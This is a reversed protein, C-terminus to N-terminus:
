QQARRHARPVRQEGRAHKVLTKLVTSKGNGGDGVLVFFKEFRLDSPVLASGCIEQFVDIRHDEDSVKALSTELTELWLPCTASPDYKYPLVIESFHRPDHNLLRAPEEKEITSRINIRGNRFSIYPSREAQLPEESKIWLPMPQGWCNLLTQGKLNAVVDAAFRKTLHDAYDPDKQLFGMVQAAFNKDHCRCWYSGRWVFFDDDFYRIAPM